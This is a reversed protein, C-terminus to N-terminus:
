RGVEALLGRYTDALRRATAGIGFEAEVRRRAAAGMRRCLGADSLLELVAQALASPDGTPVIRGTEGDVVVARNGPIDSVVAPVGYSQAELLANSMGEHRSPLVFVAARRFWEGLDSRYGIFEVRDLCGAESMRQVWPSVDGAGASALRADAHWRAVQPWAEFLVDFAKNWAPQTYNAVHLVLAEDSVPGHPTEPIEVGNPLITIREAPVGSALLDDRMASTLALYPIRRRWRDLARPFPIGSLAPFVPINAGKCVVPIALLRGIWGAFGAHWDAGHAHIVDITRRRLVLIRAAGVMFAAANLWRVLRAAPVAMGKAASRGGGKEPAKAVPAAEGVAQGSRSRLAGWTWVRIVECGQDVERRPSTRHQRAALVLCAHGQKALERAQLRCQREAGGTAEPHYGYILM